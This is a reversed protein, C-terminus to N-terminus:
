ANTHAPANIVEKEPQGRLPRLLSDPVSDTTEYAVLGGKSFVVLRLLRDIVWHPGETIPNYGLAQPDRTDLRLCTVIKGENGARSKVIIAMEGQRCNM